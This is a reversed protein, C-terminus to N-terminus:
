GLRLTLDLHATKPNRWHQMWYYIYNLTLTL